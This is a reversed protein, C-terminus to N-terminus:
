GRKKRGRYLARHEATTVDNLIGPSNRLVAAIDPGFKEEYDEPRLSDNKAKKKTIKQVKKTEEAVIVTGIRCEKGSQTKPMEAEKGEFIEQGKQIDDSIVNVHSADGTFEAGKLDAAVDAAIDITADEAAIIEKEKIKRQLCKVEECKRQFKEELKRVNLTYEEASGEGRRCVKGGAVKCQPMFRKITRDPRTSKTETWRLSTRSRTCIKLKKM